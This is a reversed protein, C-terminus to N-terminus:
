ADAQLLELLRAAAAQEAQRRSGGRGESQQTAGPVHCRVRFEQRHAQGSVEVVEYLPLPLGRGQLLEQLRTKADKLSEADPLHALADQYLKLIVAQAAEPGGDLYIAAFLAELGDALISQRRFGGSRLEGPGLRLHEGLGLAQAIAALTPERVLSARLRTLEGESADPQRRFLADAIVWNLLADGLFEFRENNPQGASRHTLAEVLLRENRFRYGLAETFSGLNISM